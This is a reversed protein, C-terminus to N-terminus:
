KATSSSVNAGTDIKTLTGLFFEPTGYFPIQDFTLNAFGIPYAFIIQDIRQRSFVLTHQNSEKIQVLFDMRKGIHFLWSLLMSRVERCPM